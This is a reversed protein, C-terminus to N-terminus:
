KSKELCAQIYFKMSNWTSLLIQEDVPNPYHIYLNLIQIIDTSNLYTKISEKLKPIDKGTKSIFLFNNNLYKMNGVLDNENYLRGVSSACREYVLRTSIELLTRYLLACSYPHKYVSFNSLDYILSTIKSEYDSNGNIEFSEAEDVTFSLFEKRTQKSKYKAPPMYKEEDSEDKDKTNNDSDTGDGNKTDDNDDSDDTNDENPKDVKDDHDDGSGHSQHAGSQDNNDTSPMVLNKYEKILDILGPIREDKIILEKQDVMRYIETSIIKSLESDKCNKKEKRLLFAEGVLMLIENYKKLKNKECSYRQTIEDFHLNLGIDSDNGVLIDMFRDVMPLYDIKEIEINNYRSELVRFVDMFFQYKRISKKITGITDSTFEQVRSVDGYTQFLNMYYNNKELASWRKVGTIHRDSLYAQVSERNPYVIVLIKGINEKTEDKIFPFNSKYDDPILMRDLLLKCACTRRNGELVVYGDYRKYCTILESGHLEQVSNIRNALKIIDAYQLLHSIIADQSIKTTSDQVLVSSAFRPNEDDLILDSLNVEKYEYNRAM